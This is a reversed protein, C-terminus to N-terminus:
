PAMGHRLRKGVFRNQLVIKGRHHHLTVRRIQDHMTLQRGIKRPREIAVPRVGHKRRQTIMVVPKQALAHDVRDIQFVAFCAVAIAPHARFLVVRLTFSAFAEDSGSKTFRALWTGFFERVIHCVRIHNGMGALKPREIFAGAGDHHIHLRQFRFAGVIKAALILPRHRCM